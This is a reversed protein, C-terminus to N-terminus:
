VKKRVVGALGILGAGFLLMTAPEPVPNEGSGADYFAFDQHGNIQAVSIGGFMGENLGTKGVALSIITNIDSRYDSYPTGHNTFEFNGADIGDTDGHLVEWIATQAKSKGLTFDKWSYNIGSFYEDAIWAAKLLNAQYDTDFSSYYTGFGKITYEGDIANAWLEPQICFVDHNFESGNSYEGRLEYDTYWSSSTDWKTSDFKWPTQYYLNATIDSAIAPSTVLIIGFLLLVMVSLTLLKKVPTCDPLHNM